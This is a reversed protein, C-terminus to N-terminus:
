KLSSNKACKDFLFGRKFFLKVLDARFNPNLFCYIIPNIASNSLYLYSIYLNSNISPLFIALYTVTISPLYFILFLCSIVFLMFATRIDKSSIVHKSGIHPLSRRHISLKRTELKSKVQLNEDDLSEKRLNEDAAESAMDCHVSREIFGNETDVTVKILPISLTKIKTNNGDIMDNAARDDTKAKLKGCCLRKLFSGNNEEELGFVNLGGGNIISNYILKRKRESKLKRRYYIEKYIRIYLYTIIVVCIVFLCDYFFKFPMILVGFKTYKADMDVVCLDYSTSINDEGLTVNRNNVTIVSALSPIVGLCISFSLLSLSIIKAKKYTMINRSVMCICFFRDFAIATMLLSSSPVTTTTLFNFGKCILINDTEYLIKEMYIILPILVSCVTLDIFSLALIFFTSTQRDKKQWYVFAVILNGITGVISITTLFIFIHDNTTNAQYTSNM